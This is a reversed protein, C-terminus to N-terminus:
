LFFYSGWACGAGWINPAVGRYLGRIGETRTISTLADFLGNYQPRISLQGDSVLFLAFYTVQAKLATCDSNSFLKGAFRIKILDLPHLILTSAVGGSIGAVLPEYRMNSLFNTPKVTSYSSNTPAMKIQQMNFFQIRDAKKKM